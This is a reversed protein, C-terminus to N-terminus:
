QRSKRMRERRSLQQWKRQMEKAKEKQQKGNKKKELGPSVTNKKSDVVAVFFVKEFFGNLIACRFHQIKHGPAARIKPTDQYIMNRQAM